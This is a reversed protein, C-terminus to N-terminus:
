IGVGPKRSVQSTVNPNVLFGTVPQHAAPLGTAPNLRVVSLRVETAVAPSGLVQCDLMAQAFTDAKALYAANFVLTNIDEGRAGPIRKQGPRTLRTGVTFRIGLANFLPLYTSTSTPGSGAQEASPVSFEGYEGTASDMERIRVFQFASTYVASVLARYPTKIDNWIAEAINEASPSGTEGVVEFTWNNMWTTNLMNGGVVVEILSGAGIAM